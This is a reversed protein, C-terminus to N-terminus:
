APASTLCIPQKIAEIAADETPAADLSARLAKRREEARAFVQEAGVGAELGLLELAQEHTLSM